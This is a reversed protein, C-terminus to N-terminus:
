ASKVAVMASYAKFVATAALGPKLHFRGGRLAWIACLRRDCLDDEIGAVVQQQRGMYAM